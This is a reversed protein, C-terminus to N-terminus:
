AGIRVITRGPVIVAYVEDLDANRMAICGLTRDVGTTILVDMGSPVGHIGIEGGIDADAPIEGSARRREFRVRSEASPHDIWAFRHWERHPYEDRFTFRGEPTRGDGQMRKDGEPAGGLVVAYCRLAETGRMVCLRRESKDVHLELADLDVGLSDLLASLPAPDVARGVATGRPVSATTCSVILGLGLSRLLLLRGRVSCSRVRGWM